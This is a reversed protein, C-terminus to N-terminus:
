SSAFAILSHEVRVPCTTSAVFAAPLMARSPIRTMSPLRDVASQELLVVDEQEPTSDKLLEM